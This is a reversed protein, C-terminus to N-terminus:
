ARADPEKTARFSRTWGARMAAGLWWALPAALGWALLGAIM